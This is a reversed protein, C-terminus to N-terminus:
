VAEEKIKTLKSRFETFRDLCDDMEYLINDLNTKYPEELPNFNFHGFRQAKCIVKTLEACDSIVESLEEVVKDEIEGIHKYKPNSVCFIVWMM